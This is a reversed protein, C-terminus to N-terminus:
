RLASEKEPRHRVPERGVDGAATRRERTGALASASSRVRAGSRPVKGAQAGETSALATAVGLGCEWLSAAALATTLALLVVAVPSPDSGVALLLLGSLLVLARWTGSTVRPWIRCRVLQRGRGHEEVAVLLRAAGFAGGSFELDWSAYPGGRVARAGADRATDEIRQVRESPREWSNHWFARELPRPLAFGAIRRQRWPSLGRSLRGSLRAAPQLLHLFATLARLEFRRLRTTAHRGLDARTGGHIAYAFSAGLGLVLAPTAWLLLPWHLGLLSLVALAGLVLYWDPAAIIRGMWDREGPEEPQFAGTGWIGHYIRTPRFANVSVRDYIRGRWTLHGRRTYREPWKRELLAEAHGYGRQQRWYARVSTRRRHWVVAAAHFGLTAGRAQLRWCVDVDDGATRFQPDFGGVALLDARRYAMNCGPIHEAETDSLLVHVPGGPANTVCTAVGGEDRPPLNPGGIGAYGSAEFGQVLFRLWDPDPYADDDLYAVIEGRAAALGVNRAASLGQNETRILRVGFAAAVEHAADTSGDDVVVVEYAPYRLKSIGELCERLRNAGNHTCVVVSVLPAPEESGEVREYARRLSRLAPKARRERDTMGFDWDRVEDEGRHWEDTWAFVFSGACGAAFAAGVQSSVVEAQRELGGRRSDFGLEALVLPKEGALNQLRALYRAVNPGEELYLNFSLFDLFPLRLYETSPYNVYTVLAGPDEARVSRFLRAILNEVNRRGQWRVLPTPIENGVAFCLVGPHGACSAAQARVSAEVRGALARHPLVAVHQEWALGVMVWLGHEVADDLFWTPPATYTRVANIGNASMAAFDARVQDRTGFRVGEADPAFTGYTVGRVWLRESGAALFKGDVHPRPAAHEGGGASPRPIRTSIGSEEACARKQAPQAALAEEAGRAVSRCDSDAAIGEDQVGQPKPAPETLPM